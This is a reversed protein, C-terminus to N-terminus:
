LSRGTELDGYAKGIIINGYDSFRKKIAEILVHIDPVAGFSTQMGIHINEYDLFLAAELKAM